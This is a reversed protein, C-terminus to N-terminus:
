GVIEAGHERFEAVLLRAVVPDFQKGAQTEIESLAQEPSLAPRLPGGHLMVDLVEAVSVVRAGLPIADGVLGNPYGKGDWREHHAHVIPLIDEWVTVLRLVEAGLEPHRRVEVRQAPTLVTKSGLFDLSLRMKGIDHLLAGFHITRREEDGLGMRRSLMDALAAVRRSHGSYSVDVGDLLTVLMDSVHTYFNLARDRHLANDLAIAGYTGLRGLIATREDQLATRRLGAVTLAGFVLGHRLPVCVVGPRFTTFTDFRLSFGSVSALVDGSVARGTEAVRAALGEGQGLRAGVLVAAGEGAAAAVVYGGQDTRTLLIARATEARTLRQASTALADLIRAPDQDAALSGAFSNLGDLMERSEQLRGVLGNRERLLWSRAVAQRLLQRLDEPEIQEKRLYLHVGQQVSEIASDLDAHGTIIGTVTEPSALAIKSALETGTITPMVLDVLAVEFSGDSVLALARAPDEETVPQFGLAILLDSLSSLFVPDDDVLLIRPRNSEM